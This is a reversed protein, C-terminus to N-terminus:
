LGKEMQLCEADTLMRVSFVESTTIFPEVGLEKPWDEGDRMFNVYGGIQPTMIPKIKIPELFYNSLSHFTLPNSVAQIYWQGDVQYFLYTTNATRVNYGFIKM